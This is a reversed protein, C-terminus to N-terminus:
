LRSEKAAYARRAAVSVIRWEPLVLATLQNGYCCGTDLGTAHEHQQLGRKADQLPSARDESSQPLLARSPVAPLALPEPASPHRALLERPRLYHSACPYREGRAALQGGM